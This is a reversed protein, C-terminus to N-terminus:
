TNSINEVLDSCYVKFSNLDEIYDLEYIINENFLVDKSIEDFSKNKISTTTSIKMETYPSLGGKIMQTAFSFLYDKSKKDLKQLQVTYFNRNNRIRIWGKFILSKMINERAKGELGLRENYKYYEKKIYDLKLGFYEPNKIISQIHTIDVGHIQGNPKIWYAEHTVDLKKM